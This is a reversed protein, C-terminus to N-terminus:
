FMNLLFVIVTEQLITDSNTKNKQGFLSVTELSNSFTMRPHFDISDLEILDRKNSNCILARQKLFICGSAGANTRRLTLYDLLGLRYTMSSTLQCITYKQKETVVTIGKATWGLDGLSSNKERCSEVGLSQTWGDSRSANGCHPRASSWWGLLPIWELM